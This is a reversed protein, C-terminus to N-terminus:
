TKRGATSAAQGVSNISSNFAQSVANLEQGRATVQASKQLIDDDSSKVGEAAELLGQLKETMAEGLALAIAEFISGGRGGDISGSSQSGSDSRNSGKKAGSTNRFNEAQTKAIEQALSSANESGEMNANGGAEASAPETAGHSDTCAHTGQSPNEGPPTEGTAPPPAEAPASMPPKDRNGILAIMDSLERDLPTGSVNRAKLSTILEDITGGFAEYKSSLNEKIFELQGITDLGQPIRGQFLDPIERMGKFLSLLEDATGANGMDRIGAIQGWGMPKIQSGGFLREFDQFLDKYLAQEPGSLSNKFDSLYSLLDNVDNFGATIRNSIENVNSFM